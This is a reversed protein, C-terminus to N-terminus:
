ASLQDIRNFVLISIETGGDISPCHVTHRSFSIAVHELISRFLFTSEINHNGGGVRVERTLNRNGIGIGNNEIDSRLQQDGTVMDDTSTTISRQGGGITKFGVSPSNRANIDSFRSSSSLLGISNRDILSTDISQRGRRLTTTYSSSLEGNFLETTVEQNRSSIISSTGTGRNHEIGIEITPFVLVDGVLPTHLVTISKVANSNTGFNSHGNGGIRSKIRDSIFNFNRSAVAARFLDDFNIHDILSQSGDSKGRSSRGCEAFTTLSNNLNSIRNWIIATEIIPIQITDQNRAFMQIRDAINQILSTGVRKTCFTSVNLTTGIINHFSSDVKRNFSSGSNGNRTVVHNALVSGGGHHNSRGDSTGGIRPKTRVGSSDMFKSCSVARQRGSNRTDISHRHRLVATSRGGLEVNRLKAAVELDISRVELNTGAARHHQACHEISVVIFVNGVLPIQVISVTGSKVASRRNHNIRFEGIAIAHM